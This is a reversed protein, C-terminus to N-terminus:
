LCSTLDDYFSPQRLITRRPDPEAQLSWIFPLNPVYTNMLHALSICVVAFGLTYRKHWRLNPSEGADLVRQLWTLGKREIQFSGVM